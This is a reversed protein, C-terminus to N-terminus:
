NIHYLYFYQSEATIKTLEQSHKKSHKNKSIFFTFNLLM